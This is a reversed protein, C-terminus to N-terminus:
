RRPGTRAKVRVVPKRMFGIPQRVVPAADDAPDFSHSGQQLQPTPRLSWSAAHEDWEYWGCPDGVEENKTIM